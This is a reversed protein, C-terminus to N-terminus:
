IGFSPITLSAFSYLGSIRLASPPGVPASIVESSSYITCAVLACQVRVDDTSRMAGQWLELQFFQKRIVVEGVPRKCGSSLASCHHDEFLRSVESPSASTLWLENGYNRYNGRVLIGFAKENEDRVPEKGSLFPLLQSM